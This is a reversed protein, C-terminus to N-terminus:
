KVPVCILDEAIGSAAEPVAVHVVLVRAVGDVWILYGSSARGNGFPGGSGFVQLVVQAAECAARAAPASIFILVALLAFLRGAVWRCNHFWSAPNSNM